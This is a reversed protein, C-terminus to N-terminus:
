ETECDKNVVDFITLHQRQKWQKWAMVFTISWGSFEASTIVAAMSPMMFTFESSKISSIYLDSSASIFQVSWFWYILLVTTWVVQRPASWNPYCNGLHKSCFPEKCENKWIYRTAETRRIPEVLDNVQHMKIKTKAQRNKRFSNIPHVNNGWLKNVATWVSNNFYEREVM